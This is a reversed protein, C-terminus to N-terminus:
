AAGGAPLALMGGAAAAPLQNALCEGLTRVGDGVVIDALFEQEFTRVGAEVAVLKAKLILLLSRWASRQAQECATVIQASTRAWGRVDLAHDQRRPLPLELRVVLVLGRMPMRFELRERDLERDSMFAFGTAGHKVLLGEIEARTRPVEVSTKSAYSM